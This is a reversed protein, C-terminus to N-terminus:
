SVVKRFGGRTYREFRLKKLYYQPLSLLIGLDFGQRLNYILHELGPVYFGRKYLLRVHSRKRQSLLQLELVFGHHPCFMSLGPQALVM